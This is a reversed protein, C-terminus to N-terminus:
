KIDIWYSYYYILIATSALLQCGLEFHTLYYFFHNLKHSSFHEHTAFGEPMTQDPNWLCKERLSKM